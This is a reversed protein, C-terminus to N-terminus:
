RLAKSPSTAQDRSSTTDGVMWFIAGIVASLTVYSGLRAVINTINRIYQTTINRQFVTSLKWLESLSEAVDFRSATMKELQYPLESTYSSANATPDFKSAKEFIFSQQPFLFHLM